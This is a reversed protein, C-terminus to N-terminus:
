KKNKIKRLSYTTGDCVNPDDKWIIKKNEKLARPILENIIFDWGYSFGGGFLDQFSQGTKISYENIIEANFLTPTEINEVDSSRPLEAEVIDLIEELSKHKNNIVFDYQDSFYKKVWEEGHELYGSFASLKAKTNKARESYEEGTM